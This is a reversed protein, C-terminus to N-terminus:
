QSSDEGSGSNPTGEVTRGGYNTGSPKVGSFFVGRGSAVIQNTTDFIEADACAIWAGHRVVSARATLNGRRAPRHYDVRLDITPLRRGVRVAVAHHTAIDVLSALIGGHTYGGDPNAVFEERWMATLEVGVHDVRVITIGLWHNFPGHSALAQLEELTLPAQSM